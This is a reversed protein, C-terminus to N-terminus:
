ETTAPLDAHRKGYYPHILKMELSEPDFSKHESPCDVVNNAPRTKGNSTLFTM